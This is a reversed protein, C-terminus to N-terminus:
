YFSRLSLGTPSAMSFSVAPSRSRMMSSKLCWIYTNSSRRVLFSKSSALSSTLYISTAMGLLFFLFFTLTSSSSLGVAMMNACFALLFCILGCLSPKASIKSKKNWKPVEMTNRSTSLSLKLLPNISLFPQGSFKRSSM